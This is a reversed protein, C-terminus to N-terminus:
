MQWAEPKQAQHPHEPGKYVKLKRGMDAGLKNHPLMGKIAKEVALEPRTKMLTGYSVVKLGGPYGSHRIYKKNALKNGTLVIKEANIVIVFDGTDVHPTFDPKHKGRLIRAAEVALRGLVKGEADLTYWKREKIELPKAMYSKM